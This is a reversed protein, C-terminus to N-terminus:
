GHTRKCTQERTGRAVAGPLPYRFHLEPEVPANAFGQHSTRAPSGPSFATAGASRGATYRRAASGPARAPRLAQHYLRRSWGGNRRDSRGEPEQFHAASYLHLAGPRAAPDRPMGRTGDLGADDLGPDSTVSRTGTAFYGAGRNWRLCGRRRLGVESALSGVFTTVRHQRRRNSDERQERLLSKLCAALSACRVSGEKRM